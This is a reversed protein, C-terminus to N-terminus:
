ACPMDGDIDQLLWVTQAISAFPMRTSLCLSTPTHIVLANDSSPSQESTWTSLQQLDPQVCQRCINTPERVKIVKTMRYGDIASQGKKLTRYLSNLPELVSRICGWGMLAKLLLLGTFSAQYPKCCIPLRNLLM